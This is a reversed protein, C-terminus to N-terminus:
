KKRRTQLMICFCVSGLRVCNGLFNHFHDPALGNVKRAADDIGRARKCEEKHTLRPMTANERRKQM